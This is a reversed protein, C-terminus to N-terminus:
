VTSLAKVCSSSSSLDHLDDDKYSTPISDISLKIGGVSMNNAKEIGGADIAQGDSEETVYMVLLEMLGFM